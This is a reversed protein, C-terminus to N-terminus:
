KLSDKIRKNAIDAYEPNLEIGIFNRKNRLAVVGVTGSGCFPDLVVDGEKSGALVCPEVLAEPMTAFHAERYPQINIIWVDRKSRKAKPKEKPTGLFKIAPEKIAEHDFYYTPKKSLLFVYEHSKTTRDKVSEPMPNPKAWIVDQRLYWGDDRLAFALAWPVGVLDKYKMGEPIIGTKLEGLHQQNNKKSLNGAPGKRSGAYSDGINVWLTGTDKLVRKVERFVDVLKKIYLKVDVELGIQGEVGYDRLNWYPPSTICLDVSNDKLKKLQELADGVIIKSTNKITMGM